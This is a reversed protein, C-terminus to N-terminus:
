KKKDNLMSVDLGFNKRWDITKKGRRVWFRLRSPDLGHKAMYHKIRLLIQTRLRKSTILSNLENVTQVLLKSVEQEAYDPNNRVMDMFEKHQTAAVYNNKDVWMKLATLTPALSFKKGALQIRHIYDVMPWSFTEWPRRLYGIDDVIDKRHLSQTAEPPVPAFPYKPIHPHPQTQPFMYLISYVFDVQTEEIHGVLTELHNPLWIDDHNLYAIYKGKAQRLAKNTPASQNGTNEQLNYWKVRTDDFSLVVEETHDTCGDGIVWLEFNEFTQWLVSEITHRLVDAKNWTAIIVSVTVPTENMIIGNKAIDM